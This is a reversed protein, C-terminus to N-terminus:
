GGIRIITLTNTDESVKPKSISLSASQGVEISPTNSLSNSVAIVAATGEPTGRASGAPITATLNGMASSISINESGAIKISTGGGVGITSLKNVMSAPFNCVTTVADDISDIARYVSNTASEINQIVSDLGREVSEVLGIIDSAFNDIQNALDQIPKTINNLFDNIGGFFDAIDSASFGILDSVTPLTGFSRTYEGLSLTPSGSLDANSTDRQAKLSAEINANVISTISKQSVSPDIDRVVVVSKISDSNELFISDTSALTYSRALFQASFQVDTDRESTQQVQIHTFAGTFTCNHLSVEVYCYDKSAQSGRLYQDYLDMFKTYQDNDLDDVLLGSLNVMIPSRGFFYVAEKGGFTHMVQSKEQIDYSVAQAIFNVYGNITKANSDGGPVIAATNLQGKARDPASQVWSNRDTGTPLVFRISAATGRKKGTVSPSSRPRVTYLRELGDEGQKIRDTM